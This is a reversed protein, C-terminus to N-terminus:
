RDLPRRRSRDRGLRDCWELGDGCRGDRFRGRRCRLLASGRGTPGGDLVNWHVPYLIGASGVTCYVFLISMLVIGLTVSDFLGFLRGLIGPRDRGAPRETETAPTM